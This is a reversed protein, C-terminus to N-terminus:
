ISKLGFTLQQVLLLLTLNGESLVQWTLEIMDILFAHSRLVLHSM